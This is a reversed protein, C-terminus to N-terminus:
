PFEVHDGVAPRERRYWGSAVLKVNGHEDKETRGRVAVLDLPRLEPIAPTAIPRGADDHLEVLVTHERVHDAALCCYDWPTVCGDEPTKEGCYELSADTLKWAAFGSVLDSVRGVVVQEDAPAGSRAAAVEVAEAPDAALVFPSLDAGDAPPTPTETSDGCAGLCAAVAVLVSIRITADLM